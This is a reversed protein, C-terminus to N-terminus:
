TPAEGPRQISGGSRLYDAAQGLVRVGDPDQLLEPTIEYRVEGLYFSTPVEGVAAVVTSLDQLAQAAELASAKTAEDIREELRQELLALPVVLLLTAGIELALDGPFDDVIGASAVLVLGICGVVWAWRPLTRLLVGRAQWAQAPIQSEM